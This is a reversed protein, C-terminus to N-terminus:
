DQTLLAPDTLAMAALYFLVGEWVHPTAVRNSWVLRGADRTPLYGEGFHFTDPTAIDALLLLADRAQARAGSPAGYLAASLITKPAYYIGPGEGRLQRLLNTLDGTLQAELRPDDRAFLRAPWVAWAVAGDRAPPAEGRTRRLRGSPDDGYYRQIAARLEASRARYRAAM